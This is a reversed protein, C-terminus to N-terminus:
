PVTDSWQLTDSSEFGDFFVTFEVKLNDVGVVGALADGRWDPSASALIRVETVNDLVAALSQSGGVLTMEADSLEFLVTYWLGDAPLVAASTSAFRGGGAGEVALRMPLPSVGLNAMQAGVYFVGASNYDGTWQSNNFMVMKSGAGGGGSSTNELYADGAGDPGGDPVNVPQNPSSAGETWGMTTGDEFDDLQAPDVAWAPVVLCILVLVTGLSNVLVLSRRSM